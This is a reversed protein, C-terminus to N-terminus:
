SEQEGWSDKLMFAMNLATLTVFCVAVVIWNSAPYSHFYWALMPGLIVAAIIAEMSRSELTM